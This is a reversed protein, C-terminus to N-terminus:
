TWPLPFVAHQGALGKLTLSRSQGLTMTGGLREQIAQSVLIEGGAAAGVIRAALVVTRGFFDGGEAKANGSHLGIRVPVPIGRWGEALARQIAMACAAAAGPAPFALMYGDGQGKVVSGAFLATQHTVVQNHWDLLDLWRDDGLTEMLTTSGEIDTFVITVSGDSGMAELPAPNGHIATLIEEVHSTLGVGLSEENSVPMSFHWHVVRWYAGEERLVITSRTFVPPMGEVNMWARSIIWGISGEKWATTELVTFDVRPMEEFDVRFVASIADRGTWWEDEASGILVSGPHTSFTDALAGSDFAAFSRYM